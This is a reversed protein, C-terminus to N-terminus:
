PSYTEKIVYIPDLPQRVYIQFQQNVQPNWYKYEEASLAIMFTMGKDPNALKRMILLANDFELVAIAKVVAITDHDESM